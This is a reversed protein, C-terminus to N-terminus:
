EVTLVFASEISNLESRSSDMAFGQYRVYVNYEGPDLKRSLPIETYGTGPELLGSTFLVTGDEMVLSAQLYCHNEPPNGISIRLTDAGAEASMNGYGPALIQEQSQSQVQEQVEEPIDVSWSTVYGSPYAGPEPQRNRLYMGALVAIVGALALIILVFVKTTYNKKLGKREKESVETGSDETRGGM